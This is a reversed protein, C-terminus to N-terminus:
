CAKGRRLPETRWKPHMTTGRRGYGIAFADLVSGARATAGTVLSHSNNHPHARLKPLLQLCMTMRTRKLETTLTHPIRRLAKLTYGISAMHTRVIEPSIALTEAITRL